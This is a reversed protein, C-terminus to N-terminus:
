GLGRMWTIGNVVWETQRLYQVGAAALFMGTALHSLWASRRPRGLSREIVVRGLLRCLQFVGVAVVLVLAFAVAPAVISSGRESIVWVGWSVFSFLAGIGSWEWGRRLQRAQYRLPARPPAGRSGAGGQWEATGAGDGGALPLTPDPRDPGVPAVGPRFAPNSRAMPETPADQDDWRRM